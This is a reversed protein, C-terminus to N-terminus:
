LKTCISVWVTDKKTNSIKEEKFVILGNRIDTYDKGYIVFPDVLKNEQDYFNLLFSTFVLHSVKDSDKQLYQPILWTFEVNEVREYLDTLFSLGYKRIVCKILFDPIALSSEDLALCTKRVEILLKSVIRSEDKSLESFKSYDLYYDHLLWSVTVLVFRFKAVSEVYNLTKIDPKDVLVIQKAQELSDLALQVSSSLSESSAQKHLADQHVFIGVNIHVIHQQVLIYM